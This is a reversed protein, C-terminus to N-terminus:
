NRSLALALFDKTGLLAEFLQAMDGTMASHSLPAWELNAVSSKPQKKLGDEGLISSSEGPVELVIMFRWVVKM